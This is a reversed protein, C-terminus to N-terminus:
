GLKSGKFGAQWPSRDPTAKAFGSARLAFAPVESSLRHPRLVSHSAGFRFRDLRDLGDLRLYRVLRVLRILSDVM